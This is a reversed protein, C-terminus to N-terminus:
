AKVETHYSDPEPDNAQQLSDLHSQAGAILAQVATSYPNGDFDRAPLTGHSYVQAFGRAVHCVQFVRRRRPLCM